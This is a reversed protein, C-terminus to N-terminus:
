TVMWSPISNGTLRPSEAVAPGFNAAYEAIKAVSGARWMGGGCCPCVGSLTITKENSRASAVSGAVPKRPARCRFCPMEDPGCKQKRKLNRDALFRRLDAGHVLAPTANDLLQLGDAIWRRATNAHVELLSAIELVSYTRSVRIRRIDPRRSGSM